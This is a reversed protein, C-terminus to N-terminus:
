AEIGPIQPLPEGFQALRWCNMLEDYNRSTWVEVLRCIRLPLFGNIVKGNSIDVSAEWDQYYAHFHPRGYERYYLYIQIGFFSCILPM